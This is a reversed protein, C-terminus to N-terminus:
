QEHTTNKHQMLQILKKRARNYQSKSTSEAIGLLAAIDKHSQEEFLYLTLVIRYGDPLQSVCQRITEVDYAMKNEEEEDEQVPHTHDLSVFNIKRKRTVDISGNMVVRKLWGGFAAESDFRSMNQFAKLFSEQLVDEAEDKNNLIRLSINYMAASYRSYLEKYASNDGEKCRTVLSMYVPAQATKIEM